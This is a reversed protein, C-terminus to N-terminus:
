LSAEFQRSFDAEPMNRDATSFNRSGTLLLFLIRIHSSYLIAPLIKSCLFMRPIAFIPKANHGSEYRPQVKHSLERLPSSFSSSSIERVQSLSFSHVKHM